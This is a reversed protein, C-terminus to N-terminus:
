RRDVVLLTTLGLAVRDMGVRRMARGEPDGARVGVLPVQLARPLRRPGRARLRGEDRRGRGREAPDAQLRFAMPPGIPGEGTGGLGTMSRFVVGFNEIDCGYRGLRASWRRGPRAFRRRCPSSSRRSRGRSGCAAPIADGADGLLAATRRLPERSERLLATARACGPRRTRFRAARRPRCRARPASCRPPRRVPRRRRRGALRPRRSPPASPPAGTSSRPWRPHSRLRSPPSTVPRM